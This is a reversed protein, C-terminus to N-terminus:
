NKHKALVKNRTKLIYEGVSTAGAACFVHWLFHTGQSFFQEPLDDYFRFFLALSFLLVSVILWNAAIFSTQLLYFIAPIFIILGTIFYSVNIASQMQLVYFSIFRIAISALIIILAVWLRKLVKILFYMSLSITLLTIPLVDMYMLWPASRFAHYLFSGIGGTFLLPACLYVLFKNKNYSGRLKILILIVPILFVLSSFANWPEIIFNGPTTEHYVPGGDTVFAFQGSNDQFELM